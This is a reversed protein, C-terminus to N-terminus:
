CIDTFASSCKMMMVMCKKSFEWQYELNYEVGSFTKALRKKDVAFRLREKKLEKLM